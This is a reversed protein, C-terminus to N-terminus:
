QQTNKKQFNEFSKRILKLYEERNSNCLKTLEDRSNRMFEVAHFNDITQETKM